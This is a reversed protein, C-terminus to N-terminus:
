AHQDANEASEEPNEKHPNLPTNRIARAIAFCPLVRASRVLIRPRAPLLLWPQNANLLSPGRIAAPSPAPSAPPAPPRPPVNGPPPPLPRDPWAASDPAAPSDAASTPVTGGAAHTAAPM